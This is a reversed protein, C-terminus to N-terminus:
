GKEVVEDPQVWAGFLLRGFEFDLGLGLGWFGFTLVEVGVGIGFGLRLGWGRFWVVLGLELCECWIRVGFGLGFRLGCGRVTRGQRMLPCCTSSIEDGM